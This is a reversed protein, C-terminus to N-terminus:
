KDKDMAEEDADAADAAADAKKQAAKDVKKMADADADAKKAQADVVAKNADTDAQMSKKEANAKKDAPSDCGATFLSFCLLGAFLTLKRM